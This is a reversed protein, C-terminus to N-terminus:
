ILLARRGGHQRDCQGERCMAEFKIDWLATENESCRHPNKGRGRGHMEAADLASFTNGFKYTPQHKSSVAYSLERGDQTYFQSSKEHSACVIYVGTSIHHCVIVCPHPLSPSVPSRLPYGTGKESGRFMTYGANSGVTLASACM